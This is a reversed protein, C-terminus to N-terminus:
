RELFPAQGGPVPWPIATGFIGIQSEWMQNSAVVGGSISMPSLTLPGGAASATLVHISTASAGVNVFPSFFGQSDRHVGIWLTTPVGCPQLVIASGSAGLCQTPLQGHPAFGLEYVVEDAYIAAESAPVQHIQALNSATGLAHGIFDENPNFGPARLSIPNGAAIVEKDGFAQSSMTACYWDCHQTMASAHPVALAAGGGAIGLAALGALLKLKLSM